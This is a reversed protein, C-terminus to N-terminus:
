KYYNFVNWHPKNREEREKSWAICEDYYEWILVRLQNENTIDVFTLSSDNLEDGFYEMAREILDEKDLESSYWSEYMTEDDYENYYEDTDSDYTFESDYDYEYDQMREDFGQETNWNWVDDQWEWRLDHNDRIYEEMYEYDLPTYRKLIVREGIRKLYIDGYDSYGIRTYRSSNLM